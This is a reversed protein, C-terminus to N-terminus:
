ATFTKSVLEQYFSSETHKVCDVHSITQMHSLRAWEWVEFDYIAM